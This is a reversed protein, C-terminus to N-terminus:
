VGVAKHAVATQEVVLSAGGVRVELVLQPIRAEVVEDATVEMAGAM